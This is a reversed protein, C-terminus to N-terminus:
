AALEEQNLQHFLWHTWRNAAAAAAASGPKERGPDIGCRGAGRWQFPHSFLLFHPPSTGGGGQYTNKLYHEIESLKNFEYGLLSAPTKVGALPRLLVSDGKGGSAILSM